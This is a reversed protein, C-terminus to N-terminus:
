GPRHYVGLILPTPQGEPSWALSRRCERAHCQWCPGHTPGRLLGSPSRAAQEDLAAAVARGARFVFEARQIRLVIGATRARVALGRHPPVGAAGAAACGAWAAGFWSGRGLTLVPQPPLRALGRRELVVEGEEVVYLDDTSAACQLVTERAALHQRSFFARLRVQSACPQLRPM